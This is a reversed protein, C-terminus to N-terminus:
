PQAQPMQEQGEIRETCQRYQEVSANLEQIPAAPPFPRTLFRFINGPNVASIAAAKTGTEGRPAFALEWEQRQPRLIRQLGELFEPKHDVLHVGAHQRIDLPLPCSM